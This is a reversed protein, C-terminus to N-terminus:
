EILKLERALAVAQTANRAALKKLVNGRHMDITRSSLGLSWAIKKTPDGRAIACLVERERGTLSIKGARQIREHEALRKLGIDIAESLIHELEARRFPKRLFQIAGRRFAEVADGVDTTGSVMIVPWAPQRQSLASLIELGNPAPMGIDLLLCGFPLDELKDIFATASAFSTVKYGILEVLRAIMGLMNADDDLVYIPLSSAM